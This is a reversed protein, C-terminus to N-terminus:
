YKSPRLLVANRGVHAVCHGRVMRADVRYMNLKVLSPLLNPINSDGACFFIRMQFWGSVPPAEDVFVDHHAERTHM